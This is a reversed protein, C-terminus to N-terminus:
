PVAGSSARRGAKPVGGKAGKHQVYTWLADIQAKSVQYDRLLVAEVTEAHHAAQRLWHLITDEKIGKARTISSIRVGEALLALTEVIDQRPTQKRYFLTGKTQTFTHGCTHCRFRQTGNKTHGFRILNGGDVRRYDGCPEHPCFRGVEILDQAM